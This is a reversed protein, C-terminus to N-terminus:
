RCGEDVRSQRGSDSGSVTIGPKISGAISVVISNAEILEHKAQATQAESIVIM